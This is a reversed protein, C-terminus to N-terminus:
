YCLVTVIVLMDVRYICGIYKYIMYISHIISNEREAGRFRAERKVCQVFEKDAPQRATSRKAGTCSEGTEKFVRWQIESLKVLNWLIEPLAPKRSQMDDIGTYYEAMEEGDGAQWLLRLRGALGGGALWAVELWGAGSSNRVIFARM